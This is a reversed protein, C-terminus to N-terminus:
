NVCDFMKDTLNQIADEEFNIVERTAKYQNYFEPDSNKFFEINIDLRAKLVEDAEKFLKKLIDHTTKNKNTSLRMRNLNSSFYTLFHQFEAINEASIGFESLHSLNQLACNNLLNCVEILENDSSKYLKNRNDHIETLLQENNNSKAFSLLKSAILFANEELEIRDISKLTESAIFEMKLLDRYKEIEPIKAQFKRFSTTFVENEQWIESCTDCVACVACYMRLINEQKDMM